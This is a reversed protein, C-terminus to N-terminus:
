FENLWALAKDLDDFNQSAFGNIKKDWDNVALKAFVNSPIIVACAKLGKQVLSPMYTNSLWDNVSSFSGAMESNDIIMKTCHHQIFNEKVYTELVETLQEATRFGKWGHFLIGNTLYKTNLFHFEKGMRSISTIIDGNSVVKFGSKTQDIEKLINEM